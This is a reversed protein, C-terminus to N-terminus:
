KAPPSKLHFDVIVPADPDCVQLHRLYIGGPAAPSVYAYVPLESGDLDIRGGSYDIAHYVLEGRAMKDADEIGLPYFRAAALRVVSSGRYEDLYWNNWPSEYVYGRGDSYVQQYTGDAKLTLTEVGAVAYGCRARFYAEDYDARWTGAVGSVDLRDLGWDVSSCGVIGVLIVLCCTICLLSRRDM